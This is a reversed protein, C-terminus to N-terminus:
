NVSLLFYKSECSSDDVLFALIVRKRVFFVKREIADKSPFCAIWLAELEKNNVMEEYANMVLDQKFKQLAMSSMLDVRLQEMHMFVFFCQDSIHVLGRERFQRAETVELTEQHRSTKKLEEYPVLLNEEIMDCNSVSEQVKKLTRADKTHMKDRAYKREAELITRIAWGGVHRVKAKGHGTMESVDFRVPEQREEENSCTIIHALQGIFKEFLMTGIDTATLMQPPSVKTSNFLGKICGHFLPSNFFMHLKATCGTFGARSINVIIEDPNEIVYDKFMEHLHFWLLKVFAATKEQLDEELVQICNNKDKAFESLPKAIKMLELIDTVKLTAPPSSLESDPKLLADYVQVIDTVPEDDERAFYSAVPRDCLELPFSCNENCDKEELFFRDQVEFLERPLDKNRCCQLDEDLQGLDTSSERLVRSSPLLLNNPRFNLVQLNKPDKVWSLAVYTLGPVFESCCHVVAASLTLGQAKHCNVAISPVIPFRCISGVVNGKKDRKFWTQREITIPGVGSFSVKLWDGLSEEFVGRSGNRLEENLNWVLMVPCGAKLHLVSSGPWNMGRTQNTHEAEFTFEPQPFNHLALRNHLAVPLRKFYIHIIEDPPTELPKSLSRLYELTNESCKGVRIDKLAALFEPNNQRLVETLEYHHSIATQFIPAHYMFLGEDLDNPVPRLQLFEGVLILQKGGFPRNCESLPTDCQGTRAYASKVHQSRGLDIRRM